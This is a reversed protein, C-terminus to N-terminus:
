KIFKDIVEVIADNNNDMITVYNAISKIKNAANSVAVGLGANKIMSIDNEDNGVAICKEIPINYYNALSILAEGKNVGKSNIEFNCAGSSTVEIGKILEIKKRINKLYNNDSDMVVIKNIDHRGTQVYEKTDVVIRIEMRYKREVGRNFEYFRKAALDFQECCLVNGVYFHYYTDKKERLVDVIKLISEKSLSKESIINKDHDM